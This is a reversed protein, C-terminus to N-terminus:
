GGLQAALAALLAVVGAPGEVVLDAAAAVQPSEPSASAVACGPIGGARLERVAAFAPLDGLDDGCFM